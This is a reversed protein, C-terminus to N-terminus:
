INGKLFNYIISLYEYFIIKIKSSQKIKLKESTIVNTEYDPFSKDLILSARKSHLPSTLVTFENNMEIKNENATKFFLKFNEYTNKYETDITIITNENIGSTILIKKIIQSEPYVQFRGSIIFKLDKQNNEKILNTIKKAMLLYSNNLYNDSGYGSMVFIINSSPKYTNKVILKSGLLDIIPSKFLILYIILSVIAIKSSYNKFNKIYSKKWDYRKEKKSILFESIIKKMDIFKKDWSNNFAYNIRSEKYKDKEQLSIEIKKKFELYNSETLYILNENTNKIINMERFKTTVVPLGLALYENLKSSYVGNTFDNVYYPIIGVDLYKLYLPVLDNDLEGTFFCNKFSKFQSFKKDYFNLDGIFIFNIEPSNIILDKMLKIDFVDTFNGIYGVIPSKLNEFIKPRDGKIDKFKKEEIAAPFFYNKKSFKKIKDLIQHSTAFNINAKIITNMESNLIRETGKQTGFDNAAYYIYLQPDLFNLLKNNLITPLFSIVIPDNYYVTDMWKKINKFIQKANFQSVIKNYPAPFIIPSYVFLNKEVENFGKTSNKWTKIRSLIRSKDKIKINRIGTNEIFLVKNGDDVLSKALRHQTQWSTKWDISSIIIYNNKM